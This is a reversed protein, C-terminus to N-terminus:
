YNYINLSILFADNKFRPGFPIEGKCELARTAPFMAKADEVLLAGGIKFAADVFM